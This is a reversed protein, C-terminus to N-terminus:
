RAFTQISYWGMCLDDRFSFKALNKEVENRVWISAILKWGQDAAM